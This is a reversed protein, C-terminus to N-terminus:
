QIPEGQQREEWGAWVHERRLASCIQMVVDLRRAADAKGSKAIEEFWGLSKQALLQKLWAPLSGLMETIEELDDRELFGSQRAWADIFEGVVEYGHEDDDEWGNGEGFYYDEVQAVAVKVLRTLAAAALPLAHAVLEQLHAEMTRGDGRHPHTESPFFQPVCENACDSDSILHFWFYQSNAEGPPYLQVTFQKVVEASLVDEFISTMDKTDIVDDYEPDSPHITLHALKCLLEPTWESRRLLSAGARQWPLQWLYPLPRKGDHSARWEELM